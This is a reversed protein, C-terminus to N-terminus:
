IFGVLRVGLARLEAEEQVRKWQHDMQRCLKKLFRPTDGLKRREDVM